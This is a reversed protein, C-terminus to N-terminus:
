NVVQLTSYGSADKKLEIQTTVREKLAPVHSIIGITRNTETQLKELASLAVDLTDQDLTGFGEDIFLSGIVTNQGAMDSLGLALSLSVLFSEGGSLTKVSREVNGHYQDVVFLDDLNDSKVHKVSYRDSLLKLHKNALSLVQKLTLEQAFKSFKNGTADGILMNLENWRNFEQEQKEILVLKEKQKEKNLKDNHLKEKLSGALGLDEKYKLEKAVLMENLESESESRDGLEAKLKSLDKRTATQSHMLETEERLLDDQQKQMQKFEEDSLLSKLATEISHLQNAELKTKLESNLKEFQLQETQLQKDLVGLQQALNQKITECEKLSVENTQRKEGLVDTEERLQKEIEDPNQNGILSHRQEKKAQLKEQISQLKNKQDKLLLVLETAQKEKEVFAANTSLQKEKIAQLEEKKRVISKYKQELEELQLAMTKDETADGLTTLKKLLEHKLTLCNALEDYVQKFEKNRVTAKEWQESNTILQEQEKQTKVCAAKAAIITENNVEVLELTHKEKLQTATEKNNLIKKDVLVIQKESNAIEAKLASLKESLSKEEKNLSVQKENKEKLLQETQNSHAEYNEVYPHEKSGCLPCAEDPKLLQRADTYKAELLERERRIKLEEIHKQNIESAQLLSDMALRNAEVAKSDDAKGKLLAAKESQLQEQEIFLEHLRDLAHAKNQLQQVSLRLQEIDVAGQPMAKQKANIFATSQEIAAKVIELRESLDGSALLAKRTPSAEMQPLRDTLATESATLDSLQQKLLPLQEGISSYAINKELYTSVELIKAHYDDLEKKFLVKQKQVQTNQEVSAKHQKEYERLTNEEIRIGEDMQRAQQILPRLKQEKQKLLEADQLLKKLESQLKEFRESQIQAQKQKDAQEEKQKSINKAHQKVAMMEAKLPLVVAHEELRKMQPEFALKKQKHNQIQGDTKQLLDEGQRIQTKVQLHKRLSKLAEDQHRCEEDLKTLSQKIEASEEKSLLEIGGLQIKFEELLKLEAGRKEYCARGLKRYIETGTIKELLEGRENASSKLFRAFDGQSLLISRLFQDFSLGILRSNEKPVENRKVDLAVFNGDAEQKSLVLTYDRLNGNRNRSIGWQSRYREQKIEYDLQAWAEDTNRTIVSGLRVIDNKSVSGSRPTQNYLTLTIADLITSKGAGTPGTIAFLGTEALAGNCFDILHEGKLSNLNKIRLQLLRM